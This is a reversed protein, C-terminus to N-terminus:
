SAMGKLALRTRALRAAGLTQSKGQKVRALAEKLLDDNRPPRTLTSQWRSHTFALAQMALTGKMDFAPLTCALSAATALPLM